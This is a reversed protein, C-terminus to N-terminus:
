KIQESIGSPLDYLDNPLNNLYEIVGDSKVVDAYKAHLDLLTIAHSVDSRDFCGDEIVSVHFNHSFADVATARVCGSTTTGAIIVTDAKLLNLYSMTPAEHFASPKQKWVVIDQPKPTIEDMIDNSDRNTKPAPESHELNEGRPNKWSWSGRDWKDTRSYGTTYIVPIEKIHATEILKVLIPLADWAVEGCSLKWRKISDLIPERRDGCFAYNVDIVMLVPREGFGASQGFGAADFVGQDRKSIYKDWIRESM